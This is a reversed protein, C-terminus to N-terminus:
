QAGSHNVICHAHRFQQGRGTRRRKTVTERWRAARVGPQGDAQHGSDAGPGSEPACPEVDLAQFAAARKANGPSAPFLRGITLRGDRGLRPFAPSWLGRQAADAAAYSTAAALSSVTRCAAEIWQQLPLRASVVSVRKRRARCRRSVGAGLRTWYGSAYFLRPRIAEVKGLSYTSIADNDTRAAAAKAHRHLM